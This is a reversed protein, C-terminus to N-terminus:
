TIPAFGFDEANPKDKKGLGWEAVEHLYAQLDNNCRNYKNITELTARANKLAIRFNAYDLAAPHSIDFAEAFLADLRRESEEMTFKM